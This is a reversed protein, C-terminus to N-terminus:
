KQPPAKESLLQTVALNVKRIGAADALAMVKTITGYPVRHDAEILLPTDQNQLAAQKFAHALDDLRVRGDNFFVFGEQTLTVTMPGYPTGAAFPGAPLDVLIGPQLVFGSGATLFIFLLLALDVFPIAAFPSKFRRSKPRFRSWAVAFSDPAPPETPFAPKM